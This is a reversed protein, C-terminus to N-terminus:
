AGTVGALIEDTQLGAQDTQYYTQLSIFCGDQEFIFESQGMLLQSDDEDTFVKYRSMFGSRGGLTEESFSSDSIKLGGSQYTIVGTDHTSRAFEEATLREGGEDPTIKMSTLSVMATQEPNVAYVLYSLGIDEYSKKLEDANEYGSEGGEFLRTYVDDGASIQWDQPLTIELGAASVVSGDQEETIVASQMSTNGSCSCLGAAIIVAAASAIIKKM